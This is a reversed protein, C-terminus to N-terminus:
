ANLIDYAELAKRDIKGNINLPLENLYIYKSPNMLTPLHRYAQERLKTKDFEMGPRLTIFAILQKDAQDEKHLVVVSKHVFSLQDLVAEIEEPEIRLGRYKIQVDAREIWVITGNPWYRCIDGTKYMRAQPNNSFPDPLFKEKTLKDLNLYGSALGVGGIYLDGPTNAPVLQHRHDLIYATTNVIPKGIPVLLEHDLNDQYASVYVLSTITTETTGYAAAWVINESGIIQRWLRLSKTPIEESGAIVLRLCSPL